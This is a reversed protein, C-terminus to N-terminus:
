ESVVNFTVEQSTLVDSPPEGNENEEEKALIDIDNQVLSANTEEEVKIEEQDEM